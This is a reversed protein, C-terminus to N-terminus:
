ATTKLQSILYNTQAQQSLELRADQYKQSLEQNWHCNLTDIIRQTNANENTKLDCFQQAMTFGINSFGNVVAQRTGEINANIAATNAQDRLQGEYGMGQVLLKNECCCSQLASTLDKNGMLVANIVQQSSMGIQGGLNQIGANVGCIGQQIANLPVNLNTALERVAQTNGNIAQMALDNNHNDNVTGQLQAIQRSNYNEGNEGGWNGMWRMAMLWILYAFPNNNWGNNNQSFLASMTAADTGQNKANMLEALLYSDNPRSDCCYVKEM